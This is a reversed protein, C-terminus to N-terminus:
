NTVRFFAIKSGDPSTIPKYDGYQSETLYTITSTQGDSTTRAIRRGKEKTWVSAFWTVKHENDAM